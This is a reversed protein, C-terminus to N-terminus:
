HPHDHSRARYLTDGDAAGRDLKEDEHARAVLDSVGVQVALEEKGEEVSRKVAAQKEARTVEKVRRQERWKMGYRLNTWVLPSTVLLVFALFTFTWGRGMRDIMPVVVGTAGAGLLCRMLNNAATATAPRQPYFDVLLTSTVNFAICMSFSTFFLIVLMAALPGEIDLIWGFVIVMASAFYLAPLAIELRAREIPFERLDQDRGKRVKVGLKRSWRAFNRDVLVGNVLTGVLSGSGFSIYTLGIQLDNFHYISAFQSPIVAAIDYFAAFLLANCVLLLATQKDGIITLSALPNPSRRKRQQPRSDATTAKEITNGSSPAVKRAKRIALYNMLSMNWGKPPISGNGVTVRATEPFFIMFVVMFAGAFIALFWFISRWGLFEALLGGIVPGVAPGLLSGALTFGMYTGREAPTSVDAVVASAMAITGSSGTSQLCRLVFLAAYSNQLALGINATIYIVFCIVYAPRRGMSDALSGIFAPALGQFIMYSTLTLNILSSSVHLEQALANLAPFYINASVPSFFGAWSAMFVIFRKQHITFISFPPEVSASTQTRQMTAPGCEAQHGAPVDEATPAKELAGNVQPADNSPQGSSSSSVPRDNQIGVSHRAEGIKQHDTRSNGHRNSQGMSSENAAVKLHNLRNPEKALSCLM